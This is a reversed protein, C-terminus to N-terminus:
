YPNFLDDKKPMEYSNSNKLLITYKIDTGVEVEINMKSPSADVSITARGSTFDDESPLDTSHARNDVHGVIWGPIANQGNILQSLVDRNITTEGSVFPYSGHGVNVQSMLIGLAIMSMKIQKKM